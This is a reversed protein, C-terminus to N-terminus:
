KNWGLKEMMDWVTTTRASRDADAIRVILVKREELNVVICVGEASVKAVFKGPASQMVETDIRGTGGIIFPNELMARKIDRYKDNFFLNLYGVGMNYHPLVPVPATCGDRVTPPVNDLRCLDRVKQMIWVQLPHDKDLYTRTDWGNKVCVALMGSHKGSCNNQPYKPQCQLDNQTLGIKELIGLVTEVHVEEGTHSACMAALEKHTFGFHEFAGSDIVATAQIPKAGSRFPFLTNNDEGEQLVVNFSDDIVWVFGYHLKEVYGERKTQVLLQPKM